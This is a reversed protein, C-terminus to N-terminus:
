GDGIVARLKQLVGQREEATLQTLPPRVPWLPFGFLDALACKMAAPGNVGKIAVRAEALRAQAEPATRGAAHADWVARDLPATVNALATISGFGGAALAESLLSDSGAFVGWGPFQRLVGLTHPLDDQSDKMGFVRDPHRARLEAVAEAPIAVGSMQPIHYVLLRGGAPVAERLVRDYYDVLGEASVGKYYFPPLLV